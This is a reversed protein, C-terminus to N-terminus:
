IQDLNNETNAIVQSFDKCQSRKKLNKEGDLSSTKIFCDGEASSALMAMDCPFTMEDKIKLIDGVKIEWSSIEKWAKSIPDM